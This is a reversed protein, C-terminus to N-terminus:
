GAEEAAPLDYDLWQSRRGGVREYVAQARHNDPATQWALVAAGRSRAREVCAAILEDAVGSGRAGPAVFLDNMIAIRAAHSTSWSWFITAFGIAKTQADRGILQLGERAPDAILARSMALLAEDSPAVEYFDCYGRMLTLLEPLDAEAAVDITTM